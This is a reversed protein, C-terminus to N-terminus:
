GKKLGLGAGVLFSGAIPLNAIISVLLQSAGFVAGELGQTLKDYNVNIIGTNGLYMLILFFIGAIVAVLKLMKKIAYGVIFGSTGGLGLQYVIPALTESM